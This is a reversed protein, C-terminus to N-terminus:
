QALPFQDPTHNFTSDAIGASLGMNKNALNMFWNPKMKTDRLISIAINPDVLADGLRGAVRKNLADAMESIASNMTQGGLIGGQTYAGARLANSLIGNQDFAGADSLRQATQSNGGMGLSKAAEARGIDAGIADYREKQWPELVEDMSKNRLGTKSQIIEDANRKANLFNNSNMRFPIGSEDVVAPFAKEYMTKGVVMQNIPRSNKAYNEVAEAYLPSASRLYDTLANRTKVMSDVDKGSGRVIDGIQKTLTHEINSLGGVSGADPKTFVKGTNAPDLYFNTQALRLSDPVADKVYPIMSLRQATADLEPSRILPTSNAAGFDKLAAAKRAAEAAAINEPTGAMDKLLSHYAGYRNIDSNKLANGVPAYKAGISDTLRSIGPDLAAQATTPQVGQIFEKNGRLIAQLLDGEGTYANNLTRNVIRERGTKYFPEAISVGKNLGKALATGVGEGVGNVGGAILRETMNGPTRLFGSGMQLGARVPFSMGGSALGLAIDPAIDGVVEGALAPGGYQKVFADGQQLRMKEEHSLDSLLGKVGSYSRNLSHKLGLGFQKLAGPEEGGFAAADKESQLVMKNDPIGAYAKANAERHHKEALRQIDLDSMKPDIGDLKYKTGDPMTVTVKSMTM